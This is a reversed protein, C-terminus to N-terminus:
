MVVEEPEVSRDNLRVGPGILAAQGAVAADLRAGAGVNCGDALVSGTIRAEADITCSNWLVSREITAGPGISSGDGIALPGILRAGAGIQVGSGLLVPGALEADPAVKPPTLAAPDDHACLAALAPWPRLPLVRLAPEALLRLQAELYRGPTGIDVWFCRECFAQVREGGAILQPFLETEVMSRRGAPVRELVWPEFLWVGANAWHSPATGPPPKEVFQLVRDEGDLQAVGFMSPDDVEIFFISVAADYQQHRAILPALQVNTLIDGNFAFFPERLRERFQAIAGGSGLPEAEVQMTLRIRWRSGDRFYRQIADPQHGLALMVEDVSQGRLYDLMHELFPRGLIPVMAKPTRRTLPRLRTGEGGVLIVGQM